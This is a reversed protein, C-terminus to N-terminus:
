WPPASSDGPGPKTSRRAFTSPREAAALLTPPSFPEVGCESIRSGPHCQASAGNLARALIVQCKAAPGWARQRPALSSSYGPHYTLLSCCLWRAQPDCGSLACRGDKRAFCRRCALCGHINKGALQIMETEIGEQRLESLVFELLIATNGNKRASGNFAVVKM